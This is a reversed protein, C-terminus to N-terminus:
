DIKVMVFSIKWCNKGKILTLVWEILDYRSFLNQSVFKSYRRVFAGSKKFTSFTFTFVSQNSKERGVNQNQAPLM